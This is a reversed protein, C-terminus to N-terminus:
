PFSGSSPEASWASHLPDLFHATRGDALLIDYDRKKDRQCTEGRGERVGTAAPAGIKTVGVDDCKQDARPDRGIRDHAAQQAVIREQADSPAKDCALRRAQRDKHIELLVKQPIETTRAIS